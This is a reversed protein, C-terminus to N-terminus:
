LWYGNAEVMYGTNFWNQNPCENPYSSESVIKVADCIRVPNAAFDRWSGKKVCQWRTVPIWEDKAYDHIYVRFHGGGGKGNWSKVRGVLVAIYQPSFWKYYLRKYGHFDFSNRPPQPEGPGEVDPEEVVPEETTKKWAKYALWLVMALLVALAVGIVLKAGSSAKDVAEEM